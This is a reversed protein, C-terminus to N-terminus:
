FPIDEEGEEKKEDFPVDPEEPEPKSETQRSSLPTLQRALVETTYKTTGDRDEWKRTRLQGDVALMTGKRLYEKAFEATNGFVVIRHWETKEKKEGSKSKWTQTTALSLNAVATGNETYRVEPDQGLRGVLIVKNM